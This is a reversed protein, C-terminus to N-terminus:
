EFASIFLQYMHRTWFMLSILFSLSIVNQNLMQESELVDLCRFFSPFWMLRICSWSMQSFATTTHTTVTKKLTTDYWSTLFSKIIQSSHITGALLCLILSLTLYGLGQATVTTSVSSLAMTPTPLIMATLLLLSRAQNTQLSLREHPGTNM